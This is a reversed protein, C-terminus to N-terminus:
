QRAAQAALQDLINRIQEVSPIQALGFLSQANDRGSRSNLQRQYELFSESQMFFASFAGLVADRVSYSTANSPQRPDGMEDIASSLSGLLSDFSLSAPPM